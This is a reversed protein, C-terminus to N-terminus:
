GLIEKFFDMAYRYSRQAALENYERGMEKEKGPDFTGSKPDTFSHKADGFFTFIWDTSGANELETALESLVQPPVQPDKYGHLFLLKSKIVKTPLESKVPVGHISVIAKIDLGDRALELACMGGFCFGIAGIKHPNIGSQSLLAQFALNARRRVLSRDNLFPGILKFCRDITNSTEANGYMDVVFVKYGSKAIKYAYELTFKGRGEFAHFVMITATDNNVLKDRIIISIRRNLKNNKCESKMKMKKM